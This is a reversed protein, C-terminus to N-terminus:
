SCITYTWQSQEKLSYGVFISLNHELKIKTGRRMEMERKVEGKVWPTMLFNGFIQSNELSRKPKSELKVGNYDSSM